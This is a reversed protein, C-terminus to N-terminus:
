EVFLDLFFPGARLHSCPEGFTDDIAHSRPEWFACIACAETSELERPTGERECTWPRDAADVWDPADLSLTPIAWRCNAAGQKTEM